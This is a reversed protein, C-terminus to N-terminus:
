PGGPKTGAYVAGAAPAEFPNMPRGSLDNMGASHLIDDRGGHKVRYMLSDAQHM